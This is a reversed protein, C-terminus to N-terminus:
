IQRLVRVGTGIGFVIAPFGFCVATPVAEQWGQLLPVFYFFCGVGLTVVAWQVIMARLTPGASVRPPSPPLEQANSDAAADHLREWSRADVKLSGMEPLGFSLQVTPAFLSRSPSARVDKWPVFIPRQFPAFIKWISIRLGTPCAALTLIGSLGVGMGMSGSRGRLTILPREGSPPYRQQLRFWGSAFGLATSAILWLGVFSAPLLFPSLQEGM